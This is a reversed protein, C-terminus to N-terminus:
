ARLGLLASCNRCRVMEDVLAAPENWLYECRGCEVWGEGVHRGPADIKTPVVFEMDMAASERAYAERAVGDDEGEVLNSYFHPDAIWAPFSRVPGAGAPAWTRSIRPDVIEFLDAAYDSPYTSSCADAIFYLDGEPTTEVAYVVYEAGVRLREHVGSSGFGGLIWPTRLDAPLDDRRVYRARVLM